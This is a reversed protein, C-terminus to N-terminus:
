RDIFWKTLDDAEDAMERQGNGTVFHRLLSIQSKGIRQIGENVEKIQKQTDDTKKELHEIKSDINDLRDFGSRQKTELKEVRAELKAVPTWSRLYEYGKLLAVIVALIAAIHGVFAWVAQIDTLNM